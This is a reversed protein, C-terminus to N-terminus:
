PRANRAKQRLRMLPGRDRSNLSFYANGLASGTIRVCEVDTFLFLAGPDAYDRSVELRSYGPHWGDRVTLALRRAQEAKRQNPAVFLVRTQVHEPVEHFAHDSIAGGKACYGDVKKALTKASDQSGTHAEILVTVECDPYSEHQIVAVGDPYCKPSRTLSPFARQWAQREGGVFDLVLGKRNARVAVALEALYENRLLAHNTLRAQAVGAYMKAASRRGLGESMTGAQFVGDGVLRYVHPRRGDRREDWPPRRSDHGVFGRKELSGLTDQAWRVSCGRPSLRSLQSPTLFALRWLLEMGEGERETLSKRGM